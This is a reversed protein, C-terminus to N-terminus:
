PIFFLSVKFADRLVFDNRAEGRPMSLKFEGQIFHAFFFDLLFSSAFIRRCWSSYVLASYYWGCVITVEGDSKHHIASFSIFVILAWFKKEQTTQMFFYISFFSAFIKKKRFFRDAIDRYQTNPKEDFGTVERRSFNNKEHPQKQRRPFNEFTERSHINFFAPLVWIWKGKECNGVCSILRLDRYFFFLWKIVELACHPSVNLTLETM